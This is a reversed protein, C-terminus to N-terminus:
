SDARACPAVSSERYLRHGRVSVAAAALTRDWGRLTGIQEPHEYLGARVESKTLREWLDRRPYETAVFEEKRHILPPNESRRYDRFDVTLKSLNVTVAASLTPHADRDFRPYSLYSVQPGTVSLKILNAGEVTGVLAQACGEYLRLLTPLQPLASRHVYLASPTLKGVPSACAALDILDSKGSAFLLRDAKACAAPYGGFLAKIDRSLTIPLRSARPRGGFRSLGVYVLLDAARDEAAKEWQEDKTVKRILQYARGIGGFTEQVQSLVDTPLEDPRAPRAHRSLFELLPSLLEQHAEYVTHPDIHVRPRYTAVRDALFEQGEAPDRFVYFVGPAAALPVEGLVQEIWSALETHEYFKQFTGTRTIIGDRYPRGALDRAEWTLRGSVVLVRQTLSWARALTEARESPDEIVNIVFGLNVLESERLDGSPRHVPDWGSAKIGLAALNRLDDGRGCGYDFVNADPPLLQDSLAQAIPRSLSGRSMATRHRAVATSM